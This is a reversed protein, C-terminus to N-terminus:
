IYVNVAYNLFFVNSFLFLTGILQLTLNTEISFDIQFTISLNLPKNTFRKATPTIFPLYSNYKANTYNYNNEGTFDSISLQNYDTTKKLVTALEQGNSDAYMQQAIAIITEQHRATENNFHDALIILTIITALTSFIAGIIINRILLQSFTYM